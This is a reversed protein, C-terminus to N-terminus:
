NQITHNKLLVQKNPLDKFKKFNNNCINSKCLIHLNVIIMYNNLSMESIKQYKESITRFNCLLVLFEIKLFSQM